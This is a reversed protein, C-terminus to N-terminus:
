SLLRIGAIELTSNQAAKRCQEAPGAETQRSVHASVRAGSTGMVVPLAPNRGPLASTGYAPGTGWGDVVCAGGPTSHCGPGCGDAADAPGISAVIAFLAAILFTRMGSEKKQDIAVGLLLEGRRMRHSPRIATTVFTRHSATSAYAAVSSRPQFPRRLRTTKAGSAPTLSTLLVSRLAV